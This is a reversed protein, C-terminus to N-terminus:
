IWKFGRALVYLLSGALAFYLMLAWVKASALSEKIVDIKESLDNRVTDIKANLDTHVTDIKTTLDTRVTDIKTTLDTRVTDIKTALDTHVTDIKTTLDTRVTDVKTDGDGIKGALEKRLEDTRRVQDAAHQDVKDRLTDLRQNVARVETKLDTVDSQIHRVDSRLEAFQEARNTDESFSMTHEELVDLRSSRVANM